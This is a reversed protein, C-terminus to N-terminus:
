SEASLRLSLARVGRFFDVLRAATREVTFTRLERQLEVSIERRRISNRLTEVTLDAFDTIVGPRARPLSPGLYDYALLDYVIPVAGWAAAEMVSLSWGEEYSPFVFTKSSLLVKEKEEKSLHGRLTIAEGLRHAAVQELFRKEVRASEFDGGVVLRAGPLKRIVHDWIAALDSLGKYPSLRSIFCADIPREQNQGLSQDPYSELFAEDSFVSRHFRWGRDDFESPHDIAPFFGCLKTTFLAGWSQSWAAACRLLGGRRSPYWWPGPTLHHFSVVVPTHMRRSLLLALLVDPLNASAAFIISAGFRESPGDVVDRAVLYKWLIAISRLVGLPGALGESATQSGPGGVEIVRTCKGEFAEAFNTLVTVLHGRRVWERSLESRTFLGGGGGGSLAPGSKSRVTVVSVVIIRLPEYGSGSPSPQSGTM